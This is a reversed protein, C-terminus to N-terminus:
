GNFVNIFLMVTALLELVTIVCWIFTFREAILKKHAEVWSKMKEMNIM